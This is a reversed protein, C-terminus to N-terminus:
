GTSGGGNSLCLTALRHALPLLKRRVEQLGPVNKVGCIGLGGAGFAEPVSSKNKEVKKYNLFKFTLSLFERFLISM